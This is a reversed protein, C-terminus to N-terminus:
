FYTGRQQTIGSTKPKQQVSILYNNKTTPPQQITYFETTTKTTTPLIKYKQTTKTTETLNKNPISNKLIKTTFLIKPTTTTIPQNTTKTFKNLRKM